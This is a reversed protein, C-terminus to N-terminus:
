FRGSASNLIPDGLLPGKDHHARKIGLDALESYFLCSLVKLIIRWIQKCQASDQPVARIEEVVPRGLQQCTIELRMQTPLRRKEEHVPDLGDLVFPLQGTINSKRIQCKGFGSLTLNPGEQM